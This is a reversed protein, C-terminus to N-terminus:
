VRTQPKALHPPAMPIQRMRLFFYSIGGLGLLLTHLTQFAHILLVLTKAPTDAYGLYNLLVLGIAHFTGLGGPIPIAMALGSGVLLVWAAWLSFNEQVALGALWTAIWYSLWIGISLLLNATRPRVQFPSAVGRVIRQAWPWPLRQRYRYLGWLLSMGVLAGGVLFPAWRWLGLRRLWESGEVGVVVAGWVGLLLLDLMREGIVTGLSLEVPLQRVRYLLSCRVIEGARPLGLNVLYGVMLAMFAEGISINEHGSASLFLKWRWARWVHALVMVIAAGGVAEWQWSLEALARWPYDRLVWYLLGGGLGLGVGLEIWRRLRV